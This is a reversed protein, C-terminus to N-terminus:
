TRDCGNKCERCRRYLVEEQEPSLDRLQGRLVDRQEANTLGDPLGGTSRAAGAGGTEGRPYNIFLGAAVLAAWLAASGATTTTPINAKYGSDLAVRYRSATVIGSCENRANLYPVIEWDIESDSKQMDRVLLIKKQKQRKLDELEDIISQSNPNNIKQIIKQLKQAPRGIKLNKIMEQRAAQKTELYNNMAARKHLSKTDNKNWCSDRIQTCAKIHIDLKAIEAMPELDHIATTFEAIAKQQESYWDDPKPRSM